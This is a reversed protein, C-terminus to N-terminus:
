EGFFERHLAQVARREDGHDVLLSVNIHSAGVSVMRAPIGADKVAQRTYVM